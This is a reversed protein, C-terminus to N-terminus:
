AIATGPAAAVVRARLVVQRGLPVFLLIADIEAVAAAAVELGAGAEGRGRGLQQRDLIGRQEVQLLLRPPTAEGWHRACALTGLALNSLCAGSRLCTYKSNVRSPALDHGHGANKPDVCAGPRRPLLSSLAM